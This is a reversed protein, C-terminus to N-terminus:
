DRLLTTERYFTSCGDIEKLKVQGSKGDINIQRKERHGVAISRYTFNVGRQHANGLPQLRASECNPHAPRINRELHCTKRISRFDLNFGIEYQAARDIRSPLDFERGLHGFEDPSGRFHLDERTGLQVAALATRRQVPLMRAIEEVHRLEEAPAPSDIVHFAAKDCQRESVVTRQVLYERRVHEVLRFREGRLEGAHAVNRERIVLM